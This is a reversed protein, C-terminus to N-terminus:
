QATIPYYLISLSSLDNFDQSSFSITESPTFNIVVPVRDTGTTFQGHKGSSSTWSITCGTAPATYDIYIKSADVAYEDTMMGGQGDELLEVEMRKMEDHLEEAEDAETQHFSYEARAQDEIIRETDAAMYSFSISALQGNNSVDVSTETLIIDTYKKGSKDIKWCGSKASMIEFFWDRQKYPFMGTNQSWVRLDDSDDLQHFEKGIRGVGYNITPKLVNEGQCIVTDMGGCDNAFCYYQERGSREEFIFRQKAIINDDSDVLNIDYYGKLQSPLYSALRILKSYAVSVTFCGAVSDDAVKVDANGGAKPYFRVYLRYDGAKDYYTLWEQCEYNTRKEMPQNTLFNEALWDIAFGNYKVATNLVCFDINQLPSAGSANAIIIRFAKMYNAQIFNDSAPRNFKIYSKYIEEFDLYILGDLGPMYSSQFAIDSNSYTWTDNDPDYDGFLLKVTIEETATVVTVPVHNKFYLVHHAPRQSNYISYSM